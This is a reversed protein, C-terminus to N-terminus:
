SVDTPRASEESCSDGVCRWWTKEDGDDEATAYVGSWQERDGTERDDGAVDERDPVRRFRRLQDLLGGFRGRQLGAEEIRRRREEGSVRRDARHEELSIERLLSPRPHLPQFIQLSRLGPPYVAM